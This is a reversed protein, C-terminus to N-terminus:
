RGRNACRESLLGATDAVGVAEDLVFDHRDERTNGTVFDDTLDDGDTVPHVVDLDALPNTTTPHTAPQNASLIIRIRPCPQM